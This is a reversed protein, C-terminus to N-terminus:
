GMEGASGRGVGEALGGATHAPGHRTVGVLDFGLGYAQAKVLPTLSEATVM